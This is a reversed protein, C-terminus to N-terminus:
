REKTKGGATQRPRSVPARARVHGGGQRRGPIRPSSM